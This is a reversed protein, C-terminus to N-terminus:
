IYTITQVLSKAAFGLEISEFTSEPTVRVIKIDSTIAMDNVTYGTTDRITVKYKFLDGFKTMTGIILRLDDIESESCIVIRTDIVVQYGKFESYDEGTVPNIAPIFVPTYTISSECNEFQYNFISFGIDFIGSGILNIM